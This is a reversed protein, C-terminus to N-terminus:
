KPKPNFLSSDTLKTHSSFTGYTFNRERKWNLSHEWLRLISQIVKDVILVQTSSIVVIRM